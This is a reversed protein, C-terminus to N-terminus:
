PCLHLKNLKYSGAGFASHQMMFRTKSGLGLSADNFRQPLRKIKGKSKKVIKLRETSRWDGGGACTVSVLRLELELGCVSVKFGFQLGIGM